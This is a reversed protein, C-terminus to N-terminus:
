ELVTLWHIHHHKGLIREHQYSKTVKNVDKTEVSHEIIEPPQQTNGESHHGRAQRVRDMLLDLLSTDDRDRPKCYGATLILLLLGIFVPTRVASMSFPPCLSGRQGAYVQRKYVQLCVMMMETGQCGSSKNIWILNSLVHWSHITSVYNSWSCKLNLLILICVDKFKDSNSNKKKFWIYELFKINIHSWVFQMCLWLIIVLFCNLVTKSSTYCSVDVDWYFKHWSGMTQWYNSLIWSFTCLRKM